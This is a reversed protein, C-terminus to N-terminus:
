IVYADATAQDVTPREGALAQVQLGLIARDDLRAAAALASRGPGSTRRATVAESSEADIGAVVEYRLWRALRYVDERLAGRRLRLAAFRLRWRMLWSVAPAVTQPPMMRGNPKPVQLVGM